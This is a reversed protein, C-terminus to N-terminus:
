CQLIAMCLGLGHPLLARGLPPDKVRNIPHNLARGFGTTDFPVEVAVLEQQLIFPELEKVEYGANILTEAAAFAATCASISATLFIFKALKM